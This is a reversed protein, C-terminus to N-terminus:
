AAEILVDTWSIVASAPNELDQDMLGEYMSGELAQSRPGQIHTYEPVSRNQPSVRAQDGM